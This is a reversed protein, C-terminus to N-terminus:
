TKPKRVRRVKYTQFIISQGDINTHVKLGRNKAQTHISNRFYRPQGPFDIGQTVKWINGDLWEDWPHCKSGPGRFTFEAIKNAM